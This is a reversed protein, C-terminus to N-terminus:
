KDNGPTGEGCCGYLKTKGQLVVIEQPYVMDSMGDTCNDTKRVVAVTGKRNSYITLFEPTYGAAVEVKTIKLDVSKDMVTDAVKLNNETLTGTWFPETGSCNLAYTNQAFASVAIVALLLKM